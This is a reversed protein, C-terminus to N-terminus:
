FQAKENQSLSKLLGPFINDCYIKLAQNFSEGDNVEMKKKVARDDNWEERFYEKCQRFITKYQVQLSPIQKKRLLSSSNKSLLTKNSGLKKLLSAAYIKKTVTNGQKVSRSSSSKKVAQM